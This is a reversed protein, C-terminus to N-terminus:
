AQPQFPLCQASAQLDQIEYDAHYRQSLSPLKLTVNRSSNEVTGHMGSWLRSTDQSDQRIFKNTRKTSPHFELAEHMGFMPEAVSYDTSPPALGGGYLALSAASCAWTTVPTRESCRHASGLGQVM